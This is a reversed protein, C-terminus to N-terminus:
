TRKVRVGKKEANDKEEPAEPKYGDGTPVRRERGEGADAPRGADFDGQYDTLRKADALQEERSKVGDLNLPDEGAEPEATKAEKPKSGLAKFVEDSTGAVAVTAGSTLSLEVAPPDEQTVRASVVADANVFVPEDTTQGSHVSPVRFEIMKM